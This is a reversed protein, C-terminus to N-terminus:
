MDFLIKNKKLFNYTIDYFSECVEYDSLEKDGLMEQIEAVLEERDSDTLCNSALTHSGMEFSMGMSTYILYIYPGDYAYQSDEEGEIRQYYRIDVDTKKDYENKLVYVDNLEEETLWGDHAAEYKEQQRDNIYQLFSSAITLLVIIAFVVKIRKAWKKRRARKKEKEIRELEAKRDLEEQSVPDSDFWKFAVIIIFILPPWAVCLLIVVGIIILVTIISKATDDDIKEQVGNQWNITQRVQPSKNVCLDGTSKVEFFIDSFIKYCIPYYEEMKRLTHQLKGKDEKEFFSDRVDYFENKIDDYEVFGDLFIYEMMKKMYYSVSRDQLLRKFEKLEDWRENVVKELEILANELKWYSPAEKKIADLSEKVAEVDNIILRGIQEKREKTWENELYLNIVEHVKGKEMLAVIQQVANFVQNLEDNDVNYQQYIVEIRHFCEFDKRELIDQLCTVITAANMLNKEKDDSQFSALKKYLTEEVKQYSSQNMMRIARLTEYLYLIKLRSDESRTICDNLVQIAAKINKKDEYLLRSLIKVANIASIDIKYIAYYYKIAEDIKEQKKLITAIRYYLNVREEKESIIKGLYQLYELSKNENGLAEEIDALKWLANVNKSDIKVIDLYLQRAELLYKEREEWTQSNRIKELIYELKKGFQLELDYTKRTNSDKLIEWGKTAIIEQEYDGRCGKRKKIYARHIEETSASQSVGFFEYYNM